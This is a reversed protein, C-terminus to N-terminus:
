PPFAANRPHESRHQREQFELTYDVWLKDDSTDESIIGPWDLGPNYVPGDTSCEGACNIIVRQNTQVFIAGAKKPNDLDTEPLKWAVIQDGEKKATSMFILDDAPFNWKKKVRAAGMDVPVLAVLEKHTMKKLKALDTANHSGHHGVKYVVTNALLRDMDAHKNQWTSWSEEEADGVFLLVKGSEILEIALVLSTNNIISVYQLATNTGAQLWDTDIRRWGAGFWDCHYAPPQQGDPEDSGYVRQFFALSSAQRDQAGALQLGRAQREAKFSKKAQDLPIGRSADFPMSMQAMERIDEQSWGLEPDDDLRLGANQIAAAMFANLMSLQHGNGTSSTQPGSGGLMRMERSPGLIYIRVGYEELDRVDDPELYDVPAWARLSKMIKIANKSIQFAQGRSGALRLREVDGADEADDGLGLYAGGFLMLDRVAEAQQTDMGMQSASIAMALANAKEIIKKTQADKPNETWGLWVRDVRLPEGINDKKKKKLGFHEAASLFGSIHDAHEHTAVLTHVHHGTEAKIDMATLDLRKEGGTFGLVGCDVLMHQVEGSHNTFTLLFCDGLGHRYMRIRVNKLKAGPQNPQGTQNHM